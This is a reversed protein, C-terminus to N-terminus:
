ATKSRGIPVARGERASRDIAALITVDRLGQAGCPECNYKRRISDAFADIEPALEDIVPFNKDFWKDGIKGSLTREKNWEFAPSWAAWGNEGHVHVFSSHAAGFSATAQVVVGEPFNLRFAINEEVNRFTESDTTWSYASAELPEQGLLWGTTSVIYVGLDLLPGGGEAAEDLRWVRANAKPRCVLSFASHIYKLRGLKGSGILRKLELGAPDFYKRYAVMLRVGSARCAEVMQHCEEVTSALPKECLVHRGANAAETAFFAHSLNTSAIYVAEVNPNSLCAPLDEYSYAASARFKKALDTAKSRDGSVVAVLRGKKSNRFAPLIASQAFWGLGLVAYGVPRFKSM